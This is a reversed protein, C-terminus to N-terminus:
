QKTQFDNLKGYGFNSDHAILREHVMRLLIVAHLGGNIPRLSRNDVVHVNTM